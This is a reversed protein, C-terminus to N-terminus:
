DQVPLSPIVLSGKRNTYYQILSPHDDNLRGNYLELFMVLIKNEKYGEIDEQELNRKKLQSIMREEDFVSTTYMTWLVSQLIPKNPLKTESLLREYFRIFSILQEKNSFIYEGEKLKKIVQTATGRRRGAGAAIVMQDSLIDNEELFKSLEIFEKDGEIAYADVYDRLSWNVASTNMSIVTRFDATPDIIYRVPKRHKKLYYLRHQGDIVQFKSNVLIPQRQGEALLEEELKRNSTIKRNSIKSFMDYNNTVLIENNNMM